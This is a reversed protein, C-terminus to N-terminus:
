HSRDHFNTRFKTHMLGWFFRLICAILVLPLILIRIKITWYLQLIMSSILYKIRTKKEYFQDAHIRKATAICDFELFNKGLGVIKFWLDWDLQAKRQENYIKAGMFFDKDIIVGSHCIPNHFFIKNNNYKRYKLDLPNIDKYVVNRLKSDIIKIGGFFVVTNNNANLFIDKNEIFNTVWKPNILDDADLICLYRFKSKSIAINLARARGLRGKSILSVNQSVYSSVIKNSQDTSGDDVLIHEIMHQSPISQVSRINAEIFKDANFFTTIISIM